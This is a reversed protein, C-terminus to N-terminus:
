IPQGLQKGVIVTGHTIVGVVKRQDEVVCLGAVSATYTNSAKKEEERREGKNRRWLDRAHFFFPAINTKKRGSPKHVREPSPEWERRGKVKKCRKKGKGKGERGGLNKLAPRYECVRKTAVDRRRVVSTPVVTSETRLILV